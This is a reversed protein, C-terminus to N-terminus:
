VENNGDPKKIMSTFIKRLQNAEDVLWDREKELDSDEFLEIL